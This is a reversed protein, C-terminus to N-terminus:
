RYFPTKINVFLVAVQPDNLLEKLRRRNFFSNIHLEWTVLQKGPFIKKIVPLYEADQSVYAVQSLEKNISDRLLTDKQLALQIEESANFSSNYGHQSFIAAAAADYLEFICAKKVAMTDDNKSISELAQRIYCVGVYRTDFWIRKQRLDAHKLYESLPLIATEHTLPPHYIFFTGTEPQFSLDAEFGDFKDKLLDYRELSNVRHAWIKQLCNFTSAQGQAQCDLSSLRAYQFKLFLPYRFIYGAVVLVAIVLCVYFWKKKRRSKQM